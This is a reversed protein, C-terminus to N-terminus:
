AFNRRVAFYAPKPKGDVDVLGWATECPCDPQGCLFCEASDQWCYVVAGALHPEKKLSPLLEDYFKAQGEPTHEIDSKAWWKKLTHTMSGRVFNVRESADAKRAFDALRPPLCALYEDFRRGVDDWDSFGSARLHSEEDGPRMLGGTSAFGFEQLIVPLGTLSHTKEIEAHFDKPGGEGWSGAYCDLGAYDLGIRSAMEDNYKRWDECASNHGILASPNGRRLGAGCALIFPRTQEFLLPARFQIVYMENTIQWGDVLGALDRALFECVRGCEELGEATRPDVGAALFASPYPSIGFSRIGGEALRRCRAKYAEYGPTIKGERDFPYATDFRAWGLGASRMLACDEGPHCIGKIFDM